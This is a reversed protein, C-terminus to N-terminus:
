KQKVHCLLSVNLIINITHLTNVTWSNSQFTSFFAITSCECFKWPNYRLDLALLRHFNPPILCVPTTFSLPVFYKLGEYRGRYPLRPCLFKEQLHPVVPGTCLYFKLGGFKVHPPPSINSFIKKHLNLVKRWINDFDINKDCGGTKKMEENIHLDLCQCSVRCTTCSRDFKNSCKVSSCVM